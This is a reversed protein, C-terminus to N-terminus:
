RSLRHQVIFLLTEKIFGQARKWSYVALIIKMSYEPIHVMQDIVPSDKMLTYQVKISYSMDRSRFSDKFVAM